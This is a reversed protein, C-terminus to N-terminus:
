DAYPRLLRRELWLTAQYCALGILAIATLASFMLPTDMMGQAAIIVAGLGRSAGIFEGVVAGVLALVLAVRLGALIGPLGARLKLRLLTQLRTAGLMHFLQLRHPDVQRLSTLTNEMLPFFCILATMVITPMMGFGFWLVFLPALALKPVVQSVIVYPKFVQDLLRSEALAIGIALGAAGGLALGALMEALTTGIHPWLYGTALSQWFTKAVVSPAPLVLASIGAQRVIWEWGALLVVFLLAALLRASKM